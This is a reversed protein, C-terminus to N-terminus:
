ERKRGTKGGLTPVKKRKTAFGVCVGAAIFGPQSCRFAFLQLSIVRRRWPTAGVVAKGGQWPPRASDNCEMESVAGPPPKASKEAGKEVQVKKIPRDTPKEGARYHLSVGRSSVSGYPNNHKPHQPRQ